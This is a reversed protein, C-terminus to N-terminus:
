KEAPKAARQHAVDLQGHPHAKLPGKASRMRRGIPSSRVNSEHGTHWERPGASLRVIKPLNRLLMKRHDSNHQRGGICRVKRVRTAQTRQVRFFAFESALAFVIFNLKSQCQNLKKQRGLWGSAKEKDKERTGASAYRNATQANQVGM